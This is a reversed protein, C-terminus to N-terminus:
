TWANVVDDANWVLDAGTVGPAMGARSVVVTGSAGPEFGPVQAVGSLMARLDHQDFAGDLWKVSGAFLVRRAVLARDAGVLDVEPDFRRNWWGGVAEVGAWPLEGALGALTLSERVVPEIARGRWSSWRREVITFGADPRGRLVLQQAQRLCALYLRLNTDGVHYLAPKGPKTSLPEDVEIIRKEKVLRQLLPSLTGSAPGGQQGGATAAINAQTRDGSGVAEIVRRALDPAPFGASLMEDPIVFVPSTPDACQERLFEIAPTGYPWVRLIGPLGGAVLFADLADAGSLGTARATEAPNLPRLLLPSSRGYFPRDYASFREMMHLDSGLLLLMVPRRSLLRDWAVQLSGDFTDSQEALWPIEDIVVVSPSAPLASALQRFADLWDGSEPVTVLDPEAPLCSEKLEACFRSVSDVPSAGKVATFYFYPLGARDCFEQVLRSKGVQRRGRISLSEGTGSERVRRSWKELLALEAARGVFGTM